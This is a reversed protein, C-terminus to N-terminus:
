RRAASGDRRRASHFGGGAGAGPGASGGAPPGAQRAGAARAGRGTRAHGHGGAREAGPGRQVWVRLMLFMLCWMGMWGERPYFTQSGMSAILLGLIMAATSGGVAVFLPSRSDRFLIFSRWLLLAYFPMVLVFGVIGNDFLMELYANHPHSFGEDLQTSLFHTLGTRVMALRGYGIWPRDSIKDIM